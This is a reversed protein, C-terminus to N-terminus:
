MVLVRVCVYMFMTVHDGLPRANWSMKMWLQSHVSSSVTHKKTKKNKSKNSSSALSIYPEDFLTRKTRKAVAALM